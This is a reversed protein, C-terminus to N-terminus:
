SARIRRSIRWGRGGCEGSVTVAESWVESGRCFKLEVLTLTLQNVLFLRTRDITKDGCVHNWTRCIRRWCHLRAGNLYSCLRAFNNNQTQLFKVNTLYCWQMGLFNPCRLYLSSKKKLCCNSCLYLRLIIWCNIANKCLSSCLGIKWCYLTHDCTTFSVLDYTM